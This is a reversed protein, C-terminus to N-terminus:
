ARAQEEDAAGPPTTTVTDYPVGSAVLDVMHTLDRFTPARKVLVDMQSMTLSLGLEVVGDKAYVVVSLSDRGSGFRQHIYHMCPDKISPSVRPPKSELWAQTVPADLLIPQQADEVPKTAMPPPCSKSRLVQVTRRKLADLAEECHTMALENEYCRGPGKQFGELRDHIIALLSEMTVGNIGETEPDGQQFSIQHFLGDFTREGVQQEDARVVYRNCSAGAERSNRIASVILQDNM